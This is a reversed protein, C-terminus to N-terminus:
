GQVLHSQYSARTGLRTNIVAGLGVIAILCALALAVIGTQLTIGLLNWLAILILNGLAAIIFPPFTVRTFRRLLLDGILLTTTAWGFLLMVLFCLGGLFYVLLAIFGLSAMSSLLLVLGFTIGVGVLVAITGTIIQNLPTNRLAEEIHSVQRPFMVVILTSLAALILSSFTSILLHFGVLLSIDGIQLTIPSLLETIRSKQDDFLSEGCPHVTINSGTNDTIEACVYVAERHPITLTEGFTLTDSIVDIQGNIQGALTIDGGILTVNGKIISDPYLHMADGLITLNGNITGYIMTENATMLSVDGNVVTDPELVVTNSLVVLGDDIHSGATLTYVEDLVVNDSRSPLTDVLVSHVVGALIFIMLIIVVLVLWGRKQM